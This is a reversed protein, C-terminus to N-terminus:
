AVCGLGAGVAVLGGTIYTGPGNGPLLAAAAHRQGVM